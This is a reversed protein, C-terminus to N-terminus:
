GDVFCTMVNKKLENTLKMDSYASLEYRHEIADLRTSLAKTLFFFIHSRIHGCVTRPPSALPHGIEKRLSVSM